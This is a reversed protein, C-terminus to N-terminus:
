GKSEWESVCLLKKKKRILFPCSVSSMLVLGSMRELRL